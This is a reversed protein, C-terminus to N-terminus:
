HPLIVVAPSSNASLLCLSSSPPSPPPLHYLRIDAKTSAIQYPCKYTKNVTVKLLGSCLKSIHPPPVLAFAKQAGM